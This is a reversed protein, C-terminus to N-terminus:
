MSIYVIFNLLQTYSSLIDKLYKTESIFYDILSCYYLTMIFIITHNQDQPEFIVDYYM